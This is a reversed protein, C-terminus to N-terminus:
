ELKKAKMFIGFVEASDLNYNNGKMFHHCTENVNVPSSSCHPPSPYSSPSLFNLRVFSVILSPSLPLVPSNFKDSSTSQDSESESDSSMRCMCAWM